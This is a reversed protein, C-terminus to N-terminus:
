GTARVIRYGALGASLAAGALSVVTLPTPRPLPPEEEVIFGDLAFLGGPRGSPALTIRVVHTRPALGRAIPIVARVQPQPSALDLYSRGQRDRPLANAEGGDVTVTVIGADPGRPVVIALGTGHFTITVSAGPTRTQRLTRGSAEPRLLWEWEGQYVAAPNSEQYEGPGAVGLGESERKVAAYVPRPTFGPDVMRFYYEAQDPGILGAQRFYWLCIVGLWPWEARARRIARVTYEAQQQESVQGWLLKEPPFGEPAANWGFENLWIPKEADGYRVMIERLLQVRAFNLRHPDAPAEPPDNFGYANAFLIDFYAGAGLRYMEELFRLDSMARPSNELTQALPASLIRVNPDIAKARQYAIQLLRVYGAPDIPQDGWEPYINPENWIQYYRIRGRYRSVVAAVFDGYDEFNDPPAQALRNDRRTWAPPRDLRAIIELNYRRATEVIRDYKEWTSKRLRDDWFQGKRLELDEWPFHQKVWGIGAARAMALTREVKWPEAELQLFFNAGLPNLDTEPITRLPSPAPPPQGWGPPLTSLAAVVLWLGALLGLARPSLQRLLRWRRM